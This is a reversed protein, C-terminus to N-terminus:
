ELPLTEHLRLVLGAAPPAERVREDELGRVSAKGLLKPRIQV